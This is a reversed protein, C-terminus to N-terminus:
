EDGLLNNRDFKELIEMEWYNFDIKLMVNGPTGDRFQLEWLVIAFKDKDKSWAYEPDDLTYGKLVVRKHKKTFVDVMGIEIADYPFQNFYIYRDGNDAFFYYPNSVAHVLVDWNKNKVSFRYLSGNEGLRIDNVCCRTSTTFYFFENNSSWSLPITTFISPDGDYIESYQITHRTNSTKEVIILEKSLKCDAGIWNQDRSILYNFLCLSSINFESAVASINDLTPTPVITNTPRPTWTPLPTNTELQQTQIPINTPSVTAIATPTTCGTLFIAVIETLLFIQFVIQNIKRSKKKLSM